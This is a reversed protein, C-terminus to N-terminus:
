KGGAAALALRKFGRTEAEKRVADLTAAAAPDGAARQTQGLALRAELNATVLAFGAADEGARRLQRLAAPVNGTAADIKGLRIAVTVRLERDETADLRERASQATALAEKRQGQRLLAEALLSLARAEGDLLGHSRSWEAAQRALAAAEGAQGAALALEALDLRITMTRMEEGLSSSVKLAEELEARAGATNGAAFDARGLSQLAVAAISRAGTQRTIQLQEQAILRSAAIDGMQYALWARLGLIRGVALRDGAQQKTALAEASRQWATHLDGLGAAVSASAALAAAASSADGRKHLLFFAEEHRRRAGTLEGQAELVTGLNDRAIAEDAQDGLAQSLALARECRQRAGALNGQSVLVASAANLTRTEMVRDDIRVYWEISQDLNKLAEALEGRDQHLRGLSLYQSAIGIGSGIKQAIALAELNVREAGALDGLAELAGAENALAQGYGWSYGAKKTLEAAERFLHVAEQPPRGMRLLADGEYILAQSVVLSQGSRRGKGEAAQAARLEPAVDSLRSANRAEAIDIRPDLGAPPPLKRLSAFTAVAEANRGGSVLSDGLQLGFEVDDPYFTWLSRYAESAKDWQKSAKFLRGQIALRDERALSGALALAKQAESVARSDYGLASWAQSLGSHIVASDPDVQAAQQLLRLGGPPDFAHLAALGEAYLRSSDPNSPRLAQAERVQQASLGAVGLSDRLKQGIRSVLDFLGNQTGVEVMSTLTDGGPVQVVRLDVRINGQIPLFSGVVVLDAGLADHLKQLESPGLSGPDRLAIARTTQAVTDGRIVRMKGGAALETTLMEAFASELWRTDASPSLSKFDLVAIAQRLGAGAAGMQRPRASPGLHQLIHVATLIVLLMVVGAGTWALARRLRPPVKSPLSPVPTALTEPLALTPTSTTVPELLTMERVLSLPPYSAPTPTPDTAPSAPSPEPGVIPMETTASREIRRLDGAFQYGQGPVTVIYRNDNAKEGLCKRLSFVNQTLNAETVFVGPWVREILDTKEVVEGARELLALLITFAKPTIAVPVGDRLLIRRVPDARFADFEYLVREKEEPRAIM